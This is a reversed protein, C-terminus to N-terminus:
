LHTSPRLDSLASRLVRIRQGLSVTVPSGEALFVSRPRRSLAEVFSEGYLRKVDIATQFETAPRILWPKHHVAYELSSGDKQAAYGWYHEAIYSNFGGPRLPRADGEARLSVSHRAGDLQWAFAAEMRGESQSLRHSMRATRYRENYLANAILAIAPRPVLEQVFAVARKVASGEQRRIYFRLNVEEFNSHFPIPLGLVRTHQFLFAVVSCYAQGEYLDLETGYPVFPTLVQADVAYNFM